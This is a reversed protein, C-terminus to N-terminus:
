GEPLTATTRAIAQQVVAVAAHFCGRRRWTQEVHLVSKDRSDARHTTLLNMTWRM